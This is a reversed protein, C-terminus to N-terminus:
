PRAIRNAHRVTARHAAESLGLAALTGAAALAGLASAGTTTIGVAGILGSLAIALYLAAGNLAVTLPAQGGLGLIRYTQPASIGFGILGYAAAAILASPLAASWYPTLLFTITLGVLAGAVVPRGGYRDALRGALLNGAIGAVGLVSLISALRVGDGGTADEAVVSIYTYPVYIATFAVSTTGLLLLVRRDVLPSLRERLGFQEDSGPSVPPIWTLVAVAVVLALGALVVMTARWGALAALATGLPAGVAIAVTMGTTVTAVARGRREPGALTAATVTATPLFLGAGCAAVVQAALLLGFTGAAASSGTGALYLGLALLLVRRRAWQVSSAALVPGAIAASLGFVTVVQGATAASVQFSRGLEPLLGALVLECTGVAFAGVGLVFAAGARRQM